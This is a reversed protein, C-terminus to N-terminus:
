FPRVKVEIRNVDMELNKAEGLVAGIAAAQPDKAILAKPGFVLVENAGKKADESTPKQIIAVEFM